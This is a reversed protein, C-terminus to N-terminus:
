GPQAPAFVVDLEVPVAGSLAEHGCVAKLVALQSEMGLDKATLVIPKRNRVRLRAGNEHTVRVPVVLPLKTGHLELTGSLEYDRTEGEPPLTEIQPLNSVSFRAVPFKTEEFFQTRINQDRAADNTFLSAIKVELNANGSRSDYTGSLVGFVGIVGVANNKVGVFHIDSESDSLNWVGPTLAPKRSAGFPSGACALALVALLAAARKV